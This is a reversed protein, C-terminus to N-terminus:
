DPCSMWVVANRSDWLVWPLWNVLCKPQTCFSLSPDKSGWEKWVGGAEVVQAIKVFTTGNGFLSRSFTIPYVLKQATWKNLFMWKKISLLTCTGYRRILYVCSLPLTTNGLTKLNHLRHQTSILYVWSM